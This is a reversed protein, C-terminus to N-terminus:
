RPQIHSGADIENRESRTWTARTRARAQEKKVVRTGLEGEIQQIARSLCGAFDLAM